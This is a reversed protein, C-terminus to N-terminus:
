RNTAGTLSLRAPPDLHSALVARVSSRPNGAPTSSHDCCRATRSLAALRQRRGRRGFRGPDGAVAPHQVIRSQRWCVPFLLFLAGGSCDCRRHGLPVLVLVERRITIVTWGVFVLDAV